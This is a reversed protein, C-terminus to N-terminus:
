DRTLEDKTVADTKLRAAVMRYIEMGERKGIGLVRVRRDALLIRYVLRYRNGGFHLSRCDRLDLGAKNGCRRGAEPHHRLKELQKVVAQRTSGDLSDFDDQACPALYVSYSTDGEYTM